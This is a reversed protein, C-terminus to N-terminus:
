SKGPAQKSPKLILTLPGKLNNSRANSSPRQQHDSIYALLDKDVDQEQSESQLPAGATETVNIDTVNNDRGERFLQFASLFASLETETQSLQLPPPAPRSALQPGPPRPQSSGQLILAKTADSLQDWIAQEAAPISSWVPFPM